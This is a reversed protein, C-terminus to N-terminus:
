WCFIVIQVHRNFAPDSLNAQVEITDEVKIELSQLRENEDVDGSKPEGQITAPIRHPRTTTPSDLASVGFL